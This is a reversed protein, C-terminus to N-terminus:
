QRLSGAKPREPTRGDADATLSGEAVDQGRKTAPQKSKKSSSYLVLAVTVAAIAGGFMLTELPRQWEALHELFLVAMIMIIVSQLKAKLDDLNDIVLWDPVKLNGIFLEYLGVAFIYLITGLLFADVVAIMSIGIESGMEGQVAGRAFEVANEMLRIAGWLFTILAAIFSSVVAIYVFYRGSEIIRRFM